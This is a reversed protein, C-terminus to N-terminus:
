PGRFGGGAGRRPTPPCCWGCVAWRDLSISMRRRVSVVTVAAATRIAVTPVPPAAEAASTPVLALATVVPVAAIWGFGPLGVAGVAVAWVTETFPVVTGTFASDTLPVECSTAMNEFPAPVAVTLTVIGPSAAEDTGTTVGRVNPMAVVRDPSVTVKVM